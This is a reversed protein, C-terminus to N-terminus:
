TTDDAADSTYLLCGKDHPPSYIDVLATKLGKKALYYGAFAGVTGVGIVCIDFKQM